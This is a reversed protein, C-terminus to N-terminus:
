LKVTGMWFMTSKSSAVYLYRRSAHPWAYQVNAPLTVAGREVLAAGDVDADHHFLQPGVSAYLALRGAGTQAMAFKPAATAGALLSLLTRPDVM